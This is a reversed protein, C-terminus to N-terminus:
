VHARGIEIGLMTLFSRLPNRRLAIWAQILVEIFIGM